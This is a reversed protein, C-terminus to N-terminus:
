RPTRRIFYSNRHRRAGSGAALFDTAVQHTVAVLNGQPSAESRCVHSTPPFRITQRMKTCYAFNLFTFQPSSEYRLAKAQCRVLAFTRWLSARLRIASDPVACQNLRTTRRHSNCRAAERIALPWALARQSIELCKPCRLRHSTPKAGNFLRSAAWASIVGSMTTIGCSISCSGGAPRPLSRPRHVAFCEDDITKIFREVKGNSAPTHPRILRHQIGLSRCAQQFRTQRDSHFAFRMTFVLDNDTMVAEVRYPLQALVQELFDTAVRSPAIPPSSRSPRGATTTLPRSNM